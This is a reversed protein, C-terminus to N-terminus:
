SQILKASTTFFSKKETGTHHISQIDNGNHTKPLAVTSNPEFQLNNKFIYYSTAYEDNYPWLGNKSIFEKNSFYTAEIGQLEKTLKENPEKITIIGANYITIRNNIKPSLKSYETISSINYMRFPNFSEMEHQHFKRKIVIDCDLYIAPETLLGYLLFKCCHNPAFEVTHIKMKNSTASMKENTLVHIFSDPYHCNLQQLMKRFMLEQSKLYHNKLRTDVQLDLNSKSYKILIFNKCM